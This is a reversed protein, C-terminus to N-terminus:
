GALARFWRDIMEAEARQRATREAAEEDVGWQREQFAEDLRSLDYAQEGSLRGRAVGFALVASGLLPAAFGLGALTFDDVGRALAAAREITEQPQEQHIIGAVRVLRLGLEAEAWDLLPGWERSQEDVLAAPAEAFYCLLDTAAFRAVERAAEEHVAALRDIVTYALRTMPMSEPDIHEGQAAWEAAVHAALPQTPVVLPKGAPSKPMRGDLHVAFGAEVAAAEAQTYFRRVREQTDNNRAM